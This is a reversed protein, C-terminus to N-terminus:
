HARELSTSDPTLSLGAWVETIQPVKGAPKHKNTPLLGQLIVPASSASDRGRSLTSNEAARGASILSLCRWCRVLALPLRQVGPAQPTKLPIGWERSTLHCSISHKPVLSISCYGLVLSPLVSAQPHCVALTFTKTGTSTGKFLQRSFGINSKFGCCAADSAPLVSGLVDRGLLLFVVRRLWYITCNSPQRSM